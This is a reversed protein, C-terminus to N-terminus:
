LLVYSNALNKTGCLYVVMKLAGAASQSPGADQQSM